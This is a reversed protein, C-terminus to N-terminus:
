KIRSAIKNHFDINSVSLKQKILQTLSQKKSILLDYFKFLAIQKATSVLLPTKGNRIESIAKNVSKSNLAQKFETEAVKNFKIREKSILLQKAESMINKKETATFPILGIEDIFNYRINGWDNVEKRESEKKNSEAIYKNFFLIANKINNELRKEPSIKNKQLDEDEKERRLIDEYNILEKSRFVKYKNLVLSILQPTLRNYHNFELELKGAMALSFASQIEEKSFDKHYEQIHDISFLIVEDDPAETIGSIKCIALILKYLIKFDSEKYDRVKKCGYHLELFKKRSIPLNLSTLKM